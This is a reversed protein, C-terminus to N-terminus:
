GYPKKMLVYLITQVFILDNNTHQSVRYFVEIEFHKSQRAFSQVLFASSEDDIGGERGLITPVYQVRIRVTGSIVSKEEETKMVENVECELWRPGGFYM